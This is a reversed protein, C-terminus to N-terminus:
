MDPLSLAPLDALESSSSELASNLSRLQALIDSRAQASRPGSDEGGFGGGGGAAFRQLHHPNSFSHMPIPSSHAAMMGRPLLGMPIPGGLVQPRWPSSSDLRVATMSSFPSPSPRERMARDKEKDEVAKVIGLLETALDRKSPSSPAAQVPPAGGGGAASAEASPVAAAKPEKISGAGGLRGTLTSRVVASIESVPPAGRGAASGAAGAAAAAAADDDDEEEEEEAEAAEERRRTKAMKIKGMLEEETFRSELELVTPLDDTLQERCIPCSGKADLWPTVCATHYIHSCPLQTIGVEDAAYDEMCLPCSPQACCLDVSLKPSKLKTSQALTMRPKRKPTSENESEAAARQLFVLEDRLRNELIRLMFAANALRRSQDDSLGGGGLGPRGGGGLGLSAPRATHQLPPLEEVFSSQCLPCADLVGDPSAIVRQCSHCFVRAGASGAGAGAFRPSIVEDEGFLDEQEFASAGAGM